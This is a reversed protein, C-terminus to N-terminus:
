YHTFSYIGFSYSYFLLHRILLTDGVRFLLDRFVRPFFAVILLESDSILVRYQPSRTHHRRPGAGPGVALHAGLPVIGGLQWVWRPLHLLGPHLVADAIARAEPTVELTDGRLTDDVARRFEPYDSPLASIPLRLLPAM